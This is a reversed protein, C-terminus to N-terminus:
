RRWFRPKAGSVSWACPEHAVEDRLVKLPVDRNLESDHALYVVGMGGEGIKELVSYRGLAQEIM